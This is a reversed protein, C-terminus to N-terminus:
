DMRTFHQFSLHAYWWTDCLVVNSAATLNLGVSSAALSALMITTEADGNLSAIAEDRKTATMTGDLRCFKFGDQELRTGVIDLFSTWQSFVITKNSEGKVGTAGLIKMLGELKSSSQNLDVEDDASEDGGENAAEV